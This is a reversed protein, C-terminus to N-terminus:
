WFRLINKRPSKSSNLLARTTRKIMGRQSILYQHPRTRVTCLIRGVGYHTACYRPETMAPSFPSMLPRDVVIAHKDRFSLLLCCL